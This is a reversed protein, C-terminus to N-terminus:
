RHDSKTQTGDSTWADDIARRTRDESDPMLHGYTRLLLEANGHGLRETGPVVSEGAAVRPEFSEGELSRCLNVDAGFFPIVRGFFRASSRGTTTSVPSGATGQGTAVHMGLELGAGELQASPDQHPYDTSRQSALETAIDSVKTEVLTTCMTAILRETDLIQPQDQGREAPSPPWPPLCSTRM